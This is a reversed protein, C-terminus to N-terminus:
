PAVASVSTILTDRTIARPESSRSAADVVYIDSGSEDVYLIMSGDSSWEPRASSFALKRGVRRRGTGDPAMTIVAPVSQDIVALRSADPSWDAWTDDARGKTVQELPGGEATTRFIDIDGGSICDPNAGGGGSTILGGIAVTILDGDPSWRPDGVFCHEEQVIKRARGGDLATVYVAFTEGPGELAFALREGDPSWSPNREDAPLDTVARIGSGDANAVVIDYTGDRVAAFAIRTGDPSWAVDQQEADDSTIRVPDSGPEVVYVDSHLGATTFALKGIDQSLEAPVDVRVPDAPNAGSPAASAPRDEEGGCAAATLAAVAAALSARYRM